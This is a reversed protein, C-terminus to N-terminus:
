VRKGQVSEGWGNFVNTHTTFPNDRLVRMEYPTTELSGMESKKDGVLYNASAARKVESVLTKAADYNSCELIGRLLIHVPIGDYRIDSSPTYLFNLRVGLGNENHGIKGVMGPEILMMMRPGNKPRLDVM